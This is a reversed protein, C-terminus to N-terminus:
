VVLKARVVVPRRAFAMNAAATSTNMRVDATVAAITM